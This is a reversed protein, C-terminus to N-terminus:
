GGDGPVAVLAGRRGEVLRERGARDLVAQVHVDPSGAALRAARPALVLNGGGDVGVGVVGAVLPEAGHEPRRERAALDARDVAAGEGPGRDLCQRTGPLDRE